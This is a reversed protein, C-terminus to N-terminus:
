YLLKYPDKVNTLEPPSDVYKYVLDSRGSGPSNDAMLCVLSHPAVFWLAFEYPRRNATIGVKTPPGYKATLGKLGVVYDLASMSIRDLKGDKFTTDPYDIDRYNKTDAPRIKLAWGTPAEENKWLSALEDCTAQKEMRAIDDCKDLDIKLKRAEIESFTKVSEGISHGGVQGAGDAVLKPWNFAIAVGIVALALLVVITRKLTDKKVFSASL